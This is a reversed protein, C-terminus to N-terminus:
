ENALAELEEMTKVIGKGEDLDKIRQQLKETFAANHRIKEVEAYANQPLIVIEDNRYTDKLMQVVDDNIENARLHYAAYMRCDRRGYSYGMRRPIALRKHPRGEGRKDIYIFRSSIAITFGGL